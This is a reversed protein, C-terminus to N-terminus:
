KILFIYLLKSKINLDLISPIIQTTPMIQTTSGVTVKTNELFYTPNAYQAAQGGLLLSSCHSIMCIILVVSCTWAFGSNGGSALFYIIATCIVCNCMTSSVQSASAYLSGFKSYTIAVNILTILVCAGIYVYVPTMINDLENNNHEEDFNNQKTM